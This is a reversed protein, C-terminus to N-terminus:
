CDVFETEKCFQRQLVKHYRMDEKLYFLELEEVERSLDGIMM